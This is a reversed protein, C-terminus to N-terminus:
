LAAQLHNGAGDVHMDPLLHVRGGDIEVDVAILRRLGPHRLLVNGVAHQDREAGASLNRRGLPQVRHIADGVAHRHLRRLPEHVREIREAPGRDIRSVADSLRLQEIVKQAPHPACDGGAHQVVVVNLRHEVNIGIRVPAIQPANGGIDLFDQIGRPLVNRLPQRHGEPPLHLGHNRREPTEAKTEDEGNQQDIQQHDHIELGPEIRENNEGSERTREGTNQPHQIYGLRRNVNWGHHSGDHRDANGRGVTNKEYGKGVVLSEFSFIM